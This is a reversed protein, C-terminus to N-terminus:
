WETEELRQYEGRLEFYKQSKPNQEAHLDITYKVSGIILEAVLRSAKPKVIIVSQPIIRRPILTKSQKRNKLKGAYANYNDHQSLEDQAYEYGEWTSTNSTIERKRSRSVCDASIKFPKTGRDFIIDVNVTMREPKSPKRKYVSININFIESPHETLRYVSERIKNEIYARREEPTWEKKEKSSGSMMKESPSALATPSALPDGYMGHPRESRSIYTLHKNTEINNYCVNRPTLRCLDIDTGLNNDKM